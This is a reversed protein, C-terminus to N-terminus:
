LYFIFLLSHTNKLFPFITYEISWALSMYTYDPSYSCNESCVPCRWWVINRASRELRKGRCRCTTSQRTSPPRLMICYCCAFKHAYLEYFVVCRAKFFISTLGHIVTICYFVSQFQRLHAIYRAYKVSYYKKTLFVNINIINVAVYAFLIYAQKQMQLFLQQSFHSDATWLIFITAIACLRQNFILTVLLIRHALIYKLM